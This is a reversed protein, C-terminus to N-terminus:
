KIEKILKAPIGGWITRETINKTVVSGAAIVANKGITIGPLLTVNSGIWAGDEIKIPQKTIGGKWAAKDAHKYDHDHTYITCNPGIAVEHGINVDDTVDIITNDGIHTGDGIRLTGNLGAERSFIACNTAIKVNSGFVWDSKTFLRSGQEISFHDGIDIRGKQGIRIDVRSAIISHKGIHLSADKAVLLKSSSFLEGKSAIQIKGKGEIVIPFHIICSNIGKVQSINYLWYLHRVIRKICHSILKIIIM